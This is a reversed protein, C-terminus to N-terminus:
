AASLEAGLQALIILLFSAAMPSLDMMGIKPMFSRIPALVPETVEFIVAFIPNNPDFGTWSFIIRIVIAALLM